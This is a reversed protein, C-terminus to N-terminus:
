FVRGCCRGDKVHQTVTNHCSLNAYFVGGGRIQLALGREEIMPLVPVVWNPVVNLSPEATRSEPLRDKSASYDEIARACNMVNSICQARNANERVRQIAPMTIGVLIGIIAIM